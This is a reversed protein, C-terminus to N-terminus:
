DGEGAWEFDEKQKYPANWWEADYVITKANPYLAKIIDGNTPNDPIMIGNEIIQAVVGKQLGRKIFDDKVEESIDILIQM